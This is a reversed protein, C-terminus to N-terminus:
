KNNKEKILTDITAISVAQYFLYFFLIFMRDENSYTPLNILWQFPNTFEWIVFTTFLYVVLYIFLTLLIQRKIISVVKKMKSYKLQNNNLLGGHNISKEKGFIM